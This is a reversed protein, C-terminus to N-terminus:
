RNGHIGGKAGSSGRWAANPDEHQRRRAEAEPSMRARGLASEAGDPVLARRKHWSVFDRLRLFGGAASGPTTGALWESLRKEVAEVPPKGSEALHRAFAAADTKEIDALGVDPPAAGTAVHARWANLTRLYAELYPTLWTRRAPREQEGAPDEPASVCGPAGVGPKNEGSPPNDTETETETETEPNVEAEAPTLCRAQRRSARQKASAEGGIRGANQKLKRLKRIKASSPQYDTFDHIRFGGDCASLLCARLLPDVLQDVKEDHKLPILAAAVPRPIFGDTLQEVSWLGAFWWWLLARDGGEEALVSLAKAHSRFGSECRWWM